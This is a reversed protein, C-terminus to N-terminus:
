RGATVSLTVHAPVLSRAIRAIREREADDAAPSGVAITVHPKTAPKWDQPDTPEDSVVTSGSDKISARPVEYPVLRDRLSTATGSWQARAYAQGVDRRLSSESWADDITALLWGGMYRVMDLPATRPDLYADFCDLVSIAPALVEDLGALFRELFPDEALMSPVHEVLPFPSAMGPVARRGPQEPPHASIRELTSSM